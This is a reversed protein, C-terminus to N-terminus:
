VKRYIGWCLLYVARKIHGHKVGCFGRNGPGRTLDHSPLESQVLSVHAETPMHGLDLVM